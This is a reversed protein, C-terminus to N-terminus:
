FLMGLLSPTIFSYDLGNPEKPRNSIAIMSEKVSEWAKVADPMSLSRM